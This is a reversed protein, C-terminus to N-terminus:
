SSPAHSGTIERVEAGRIALDMKSFLKVDEGGNPNAPECMSGSTDMVLVVDLAPPPGVPPPSVQLVVTGPASGSEFVTLPM